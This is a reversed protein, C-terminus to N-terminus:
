QTGRLSDDNRYGSELLSLVGSANKAYGCEFISSRCAFDLTEIIDGDVTELTSGNSIFDERLRSLLYSYKKSYLLRTMEEPSYCPKKSKRM